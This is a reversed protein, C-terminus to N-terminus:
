KKSTFDSRLSIDNLLMTVDRDHIMTKILIFDDSTRFQTNLNVRIKLLYNTVNKLVPLIYILKAFRKENFCLIILIFVIM